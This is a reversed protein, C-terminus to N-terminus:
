PNVEQEQELKELIAIEAEIKDLREKVIDRRSRRSNLAEQIAENPTLCANKREIRKSYGFAQLVDGFWYYLKTERVVEVEHIIQDYFKYIKM